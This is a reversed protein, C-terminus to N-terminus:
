TWGSLLQERDHPCSARHPSQIQSDQRVYVGALCAQSFSQEKCGTDDVLDAADIVAIGLGIRQRQFPLAADGNLRGDDREDDVAEGDIQDVRGAVGIEDGLHFPHEVHEVAGHQDDGGHFAHLRLRAHQHPRQLPQFDRGDNEDVLDVAAACVDFAHQLANRLLQRGVDHRHPGCVPRARAAGAESRVSGIIRRKPCREGLAEGVMVIRDQRAIQGVVGDRMGPETLSQCGLRHLREHM